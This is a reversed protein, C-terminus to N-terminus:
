WWTIGPGEYSNNLSRFCGWSGKRRASEWKENMRSCLLHSSLRGQVVKLTRCQDFFEIRIKWMELKGFKDVSRELRLKYGYGCVSIMRKVLKYEQFLILIKRGTIRQVHLEVRRSLGRERKGRVIRQVNLSAVVLLKELGELHLWDNGLLYKM